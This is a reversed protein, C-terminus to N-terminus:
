GSKLFLIGFRKIFHKIRMCRFIKSSGLSLNKFNVTNKKRLSIIVFLYCSGCKDQFSESEPVNKMIGYIM